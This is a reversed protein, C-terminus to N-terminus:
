KKRPRPARKPTQPLPAETALRQRPIQYEPTGIVPSNDAPQNIQMTFDGCVVGSAVIWHGTGGLTIAIDHVGGRFEHMAVQLVGLSAGTASVLSDGPTLQEARKLKKTSLLFPQDRTVIIQGTGNQLKYVIYVVLPQIGGPGTGQSSHVTQQSWQSANTYDAAFVTDGVLITEIAKQATPNINVTTGYAFSM